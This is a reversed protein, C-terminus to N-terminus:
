REISRTISTATFDFAVSTCGPYPKRASRAPAERLRDLFRPEREDARRRLHDLRHAVLGGRPADGIRGAHRDHGSGAIRDVERLRLLLGSADPERQQDLGGEAPAALAHVDHAVGVMELFGQLAGLALRLGVEPPGLDEEFAVHVAGVVDFRLDHRVRVAVHEEESLTVARDLAPM